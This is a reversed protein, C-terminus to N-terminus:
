EIGLAGSVEQGYMCVFQANGRGSVILISFFNIWNCLKKVWIKHPNANHRTLRGRELQLMDEVVPQFLSNPTEPEEKLPSIIGILM